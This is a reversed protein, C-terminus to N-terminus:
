QGAGQQRLTVTADVQGPTDLATVSVNEALIRQERRQSDLWNYLNAFAVNTLQLRAFDGSMTLGDSKLGRAALSAALSERTMPAAPPPSQRALEAAEVALGQLQAAEQRLRPLEERLEGRGMLAPDILLAYVLAAAVSAGGVVLYRRERENRAMWYLAAQEKYQRLKAMANMNANMNASM